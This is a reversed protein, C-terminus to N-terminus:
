VWNEGKYSVFCKELIGDSCNKDPKRMNRLPNKHRVGFAPCADPMAVQIQWHNFETHSLM